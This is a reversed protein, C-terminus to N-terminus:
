IYLRFNKELDHGQYVVYGIVNRFCVNYKVSSCIITKLSIESDLLEQQLHIGCTDEIESNSWPFQMDSIMYDYNEVLINMLADKGNTCVTIEAGTYNLSKKIISCKVPDDEVIIIKM